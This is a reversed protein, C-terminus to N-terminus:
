VPDRWRSLDRRDRFVNTFFLVVILVIAAALGIWPWHRQFWEWM